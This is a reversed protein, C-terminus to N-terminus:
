EVGKQLDIKVKGAMFVVICIKAPNIAINIRKGISISEWNEFGTDFIM